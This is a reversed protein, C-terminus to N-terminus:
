VSTASTWAAEAVQGVDGAPQGDEAFALLGVAVRRRWGSQYRWWALVASCRLVRDPM